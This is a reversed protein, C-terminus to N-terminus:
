LSPGSCQRTIGQNRPSSEEPASIGETDCYQLTVDNLFSPLRYIQWQIKIEKATISM